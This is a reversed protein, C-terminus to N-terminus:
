IVARLHSWVLKSERLMSGISGTKRYIFFLPNKLSFYYLRILLKIMEDFIARLIIVFQLPALLRNIFFFRSKIPESEVANCGSHM